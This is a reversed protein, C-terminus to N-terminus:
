REVEVAITEIIEGDSLAIVLDVTITDSDASTYDGQRVWEIADKVASEYSDATIRTEGGGNRSMGDSISAIITMGPLPRKILQYGM